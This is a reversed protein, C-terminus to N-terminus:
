FIHLIHLYIGESSVSATFAVYKPIHVLYLLICQVLMLVIMIEMMHIMFRHLARLIRMRVMVNQKKFISVNMGLATGLPLPLDSLFM